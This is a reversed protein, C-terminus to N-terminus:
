SDHGSTSWSIGFGRVQISLTQLFILSVIIGRLTKVTQISPQFFVTIYMTRDVYDGTGVKDHARHIPEQWGRYTAATANQRESDGSKPIDAVGQAHHCWGVVLCFKELCLLLVM